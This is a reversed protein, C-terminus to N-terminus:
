GFAKGIRPPLEGSNEAAKWKAIQQPTADILSADRFVDNLVQEFEQNAKEPTMGAPVNKNEECIYLDNLSGMGGFYKLLVVVAEKRAPLSGLAAQIPVLKEVWHSMSSRRCFEILKGLSGQLNNEGKM